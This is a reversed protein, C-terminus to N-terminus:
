WGNEESLQYITRVGGVKNLYSPKEYMSMRFHYQYGRRTCARAKVMTKPTYQVLQGDAPVLIRPNIRLVERHLDRFVHHEDWIKPRLIDNVYEQTAVGTMESSLTLSVNFAKPHIMSFDPSGHTKNYPVGDCHWGPVEAYQGVLLPSVGVNFIPDLGADVAM